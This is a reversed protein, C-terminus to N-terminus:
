KKKVRLRINVVSKIADENNIIFSLYQKNILIKYILIMM